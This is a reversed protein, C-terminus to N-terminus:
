YGLSSSYGLLNLMAKFDNENDEALLKVLDRHYQSPNHRYTKAKRGAKIHANLGSKYETEALKQLYKQAAITWNYKSM